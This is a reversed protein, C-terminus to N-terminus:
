MLRSCQTGISSISLIKVCKIIPLLYPDTTLVRVSSIHPKKLRLFSNHWYMTSTGSCPHLFSKMLPAVCIKLHLPIAHCFDWGRCNSNHLKAVAWILTDGGRRHHMCCELWRPPAPSTGFPKGLLVTLVRLAYMLQAAQRLAIDIHANFSFTNLLSVGLIKMTDIRQIGPIPTPYTLHERGM